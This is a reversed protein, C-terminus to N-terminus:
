KLLLMKNTKDFDGAQLRYFYIGSSLENGNALNGDWTLEHSGASYYENALVAVRRGLMDYVEILVETGYPLNFSFTTQANFPNPYNQILEFDDPLSSLPEEEIGTQGGYIIPSTSEVWVPDYIEIEPTYGLNGALNNPSRDFFRQGDGEDFTWYAMLGPENGTLQITMFDQIQPQTRATNWIRIEDILGDFFGYQWDPAGRVGITLPTEFGPILGTVQSSQNFQGNVYTTFVSGDYTWALHTWENLPVTYNGHEMVHWQGNTVLLAFHTGEDNIGMNYQHYPNSWNYFPKDMVMRQSEGALNYPYVWAELTISQSPNLVANFPVTARNNLGNYELCHNVVPGGGQGTTGSAVNSYGSSNGVEDYTVLILYYTSVTDLEPVMFNQVTGPDEPYPVGAAQEAYNWWETTDPGVPWKSYRIEYIAARGTLSDDGPATWELRLMTPYSNTVVLDETTAPVIDDTIFLWPRYLAVPDTGETHVFRLDLVGNPDIYSEVNAVLEAFIGSTINDAGIIFEEQHYIGFEGFVVTDGFATNLANLNLYRVALDIDNGVLPGLEYVVVRPPRLDNLVMIDYPSMDYFGPLTITAGFSVACLILVLGTTVAYIGRM